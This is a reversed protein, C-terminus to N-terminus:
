DVEQMGDRIMEEVEEETMMMESHAEEAHKKAQAALEKVADDKDDAETRAIFDDQPCQFKYPM